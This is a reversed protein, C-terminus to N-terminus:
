NTLHTKSVVQDFLSSLASGVDDDPGVEFYLGSTACTKMAPAIDTYFPAIYTNYWTNSNLEQYTTYLSAIDAGNNKIETCASTDLQQQCRTGSTVAQLCGNPRVADEVGDSVLFLVKIPDSASLGTGGVGITSKLSSIAPLLDTTQDDNYNQYPIRMLDVAAAASAAATLDSSLNFVTTLKMQQADDGLSYLAIKYQGVFSQAAKAKAIMSQVANSVVEIRLTIGAAKATTYTDSTSGTIHCTFACGDFKQELATIDQSTAGLGMSPSNDELVYFNYYLPPKNEAASNVSVDISNIGIISMFYTPVASTLSVNSYFTNNSYTVSISSSTISGFKIDGYNAKVINLADTEGSAIHGTAGTGSVTTVAPSKQSISGLAAADAAAQLRHKVVLAISYDFCAGVSLIIPVILLAFMVGVSGSSEHKDSINGPAFFM